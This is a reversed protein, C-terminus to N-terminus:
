VGQKLASAQFMATAIFLGIYAIILLALLLLSM